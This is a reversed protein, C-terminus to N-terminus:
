GCSSFPMCHTAAASPKQRGPHAEVVQERGIGKSLGWCTTKCGGSVLCCCSVSLLLLLQKTDLVLVLLVWLRVMIVDDLKQWVELDEATKMPLVTTVRGPRLQNPGTAAAVAPCHAKIAAVINAMGAATVTTFWGPSLCCPLPRTKFPFLSLPPLTNAMGAATVTICSGPSLCCPPTHTHTHNKLTLGASSVRRRAECVCALFICVCVCVRLAQSCCGLLCLAWTCAHLM